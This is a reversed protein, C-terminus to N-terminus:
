GRAENRAGRDKTKGESRAALYIALLILGGGVWKSATLAEGFFLYAM